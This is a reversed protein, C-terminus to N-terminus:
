AINALLPSTIFVAVDPNIPSKPVLVAVDNTAVCNSLEGITPLTKVTSEFVACALNSKSVAYVFNIARVVVLEECAAENPLPSVIVGPTYWIPPAPENAPGIVKFACFSESAINTSLNLPAKLTVACAFTIRSLPARRQLTKQIASPASENPVKM